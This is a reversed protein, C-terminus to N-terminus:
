LLQAREIWRLRHRDPTSLLEATQTTAGLDRRGVVFTTATHQWSPQRLLRRCLCFLSFCGCPLTHSKLVATSAMTSVKLWTPQGHGSTTTTHGCVSRFTASFGHVSSTRRWLVPKAMRCHISSLHCKLWGRILPVAFAPLATMASLQRIWRRIPSDENEYQATMKINNHCIFITTATLGEQQVRRNVAQRFHVSCGKM